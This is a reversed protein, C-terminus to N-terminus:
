LRQKWPRPHDVVDEVLDGAGVDVVIMGEIVEVEVEVVDEGSIKTTTLVIEVVERSDVKDQFNVEKHRDWTNSNLFYEKDKHCPQLLHKLRTAPVMHVTFM